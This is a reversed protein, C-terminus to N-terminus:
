IAPAIFTTGWQSGMVCGSMPEVKSALVVFVMLNQTQLSGIGLVVGSSNNRWEPATQLTPLVQVNRSRSGLRGLTGYRWSLRGQLLGLMGGVSHVASSPRPSLLTHTDKVKKPCWGWVVGSDSVDKSVGAANGECVERVLLDPPLIPMPMPADTLVQM